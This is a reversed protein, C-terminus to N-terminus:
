VQSKFGGGEWPAWYLKHKEYETDKSLYGEKEMGM